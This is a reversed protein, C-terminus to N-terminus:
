AKLLKSLYCLLCLLMNCIVTPWSVVVRAARGQLRNHWSSIFIINFPVNTISHHFWHFLQTFTFDLCSAIYRNAVSQSCMPRWFPNDRNQFSLLITFNNGGSVIFHLRWYPPCGKIMIQPLLTNISANQLQGIKSVIGYRTNADPFKDLSENIDHSCGKLM